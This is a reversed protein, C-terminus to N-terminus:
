SASWVRYAEKMAELTQAVLADDHKGSDCASRYANRAEVFAVWLDAEGLPDYSRRMEKYKSARKENQKLASKLTRAVDVEGVAYAHNFAALIKDSLRRRSESRQGTEAMATEPSFDDLPSM